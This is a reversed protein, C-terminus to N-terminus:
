VRGSGVETSGRWVLCTLAIMAVLPLTVIDLLTVIGLTLSLIFNGAQTMFLLKKKNNRDVALGGFLSFLLSPITIMAAIFGLVVPSTTLQLVLWGQAVIQM